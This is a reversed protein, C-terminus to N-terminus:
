KAGFLDLFPAHTWSWVMAPRHDIDVHWNWYVAPGFVDVAHVAFAALLLTALLAVGAPRRALAAIPRLCLLALLPMVEALYRTGWCHGGWWIAFCSILGLHLLFVAAVFLRWGAPGPCPEPAARAGLLLGGALGAVLWPQYILLGRGPSVLTAAVVEASPWTWLKASEFYSSYPGIPSGYVHLYVAAWPAYALGALAAVRLARRPDRALIWLGLPVVILAATPRCALLMACALGQWASGGRVPTGERRFEVILAVLLWLVLGSHQCLNQGCVSFLASGATLFLTAWAAPRPGALRRALLWFLGLAAATTWAGTWKGIRGIVEPATLDAGTLRALAAFPLAVAAMGYPYRSYIGGATRAVGYPLGDASGESFGAPASAARGDLRLTGESALACATSVVPWDDGSVWHRNNALFLAAAPLTVCLAAARWSPEADGRGLWDRLRREYAPSLAARLVAPALALALWALSPGAGRLALGAALLAAAWRLVDLGRSWLSLPSGNRGSQLRSATM